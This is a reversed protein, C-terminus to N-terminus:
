VPVYLWPSKQGMERHLDLAYQRLTRDTETAQLRPPRWGASRQRWFTSRMWQGLKMQRQGGHQRSLSSSAESGKGGLTTRCCWMPSADHSPKYDRNVHPSSLRRPAAPSPPVIRISVVPQLTM